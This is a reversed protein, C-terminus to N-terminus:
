NRALPDRSHAGSSLSLSAIWPGAYRLISQKTASNITPGASPPVAPEECHRCSTGAHSFLIQVIVLRCAAVAELVIGEIGDDRRARDAPDRGAIGPAVDIQRGVAKEVPEIVVRRDDAKGRSGPLVAYGVDLVGALENPIERGHIQRLLHVQSRRMDGLVDIF